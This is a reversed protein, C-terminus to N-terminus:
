PNHSTIIVSLLRADKKKRTLGRVCGEHRSKISDSFQLQFYRLNKSSSHERINRSAHIPCRGRPM